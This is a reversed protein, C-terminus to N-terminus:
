NLFDVKIIHFIVCNLPDGGEEPYISFLKKENCVKKKRKVFGRRFNPSYLLSNYPCIAVLSFYRKVCFIVIERCVSNEMNVNMPWHSIKVSKDFFLRNRLILIGYTLNNCTRSFFTYTLGGGGECGKKKEEIYESEAIIQVTVVSFMGDSM